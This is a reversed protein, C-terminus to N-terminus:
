LQINPSANERTINTILSTVVSHRTARNIKDTTRKSNNTSIPPKWSNGISKDQQVTISSSRAKRGLKSSIKRIHNSPSQSGGGLKDENLKSISGSSQRLKEHDHETKGKLTRQLKVKEEEKSKTGDMRKLLAREESRFRFPSSAIPASQPNSKTTSSSKLCSNEFSISSSPKANATVRGHVSKNLLRETTRVYVFRIMDTFNELSVHLQLRLECPLQACMVFYRRDRSTPNASAQNLLGHSAKTSTRLAVPNSKPLNSHVKKNRNQELVSATKSTEGASSPLNISMHLSRTTSRKEVSDGVSKIIKATLNLGNRPKTATKSTIGAGSPLNISMYLSPATIRKKDVSGGVSKKSTSIKNLGNRSQSVAAATKKRTEATASSLNISMHLSRANLRKKEAANGVSKKYELGSNMGRRSPVAGAAKKKEDRSGSCKVAVTKTSLKPSSNVEGKVPLASVQKGANGQVLTKEQVPVLINNKNDGVLTCSEVNLNTDHRPHLVNSVDLDSQGVVQYNVAEEDPHENASVVNDANSSTVFSSDACNGERAESEFAGNACTNAEQILVGKRKYHAEFYAKKAAVSGPKSYKEAEEVYRNHTFTSWKEWNLSETMFKGFSISEGLACIPNGLSMSVWAQNRDEVFVVHPQILSIKLLKTFSDM